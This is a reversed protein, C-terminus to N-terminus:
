QVSSTVSAWLSSLPQNWAGPVVHLLHSEGWPQRHGWVSEAGWWVKRGGPFDLPLCKRAMGQMYFVKYIEESDVQNVGYTIIIGFCYFNNLNTQYFCFGKSSLHLTGVVTIWGPHYQKNDYVRCFCKELSNWLSMFSNKETFRVGRSYRGIAQGLQSCNGPVM